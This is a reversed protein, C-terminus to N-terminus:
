ATAQTTPIVCIWSSSAGLLLPIHSPRFASIFFERASEHMFHPTLQLVGKFVFEILDAHDVLSQRSQIFIAVRLFIKVVNFAQLWFSRLALGQSTLLFGIHAASTSFLSGPFFNSSGKAIIIRRMILAGSLFLNLALSRLSKTWTHSPRM